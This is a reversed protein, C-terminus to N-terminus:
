THYNCFFNTKSLRVYAAVFVLLTSKKATPKDPIQFFLEEKLSSTM